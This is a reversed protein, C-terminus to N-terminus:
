QEDQLNWLSTAFIKRQSMATPFVQNYQLAKQIDFVYNDNGFNLQNLDIDIMEFGKGQKNNRKTRTMTM